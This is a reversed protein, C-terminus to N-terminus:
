QGARRERRQRDLELARWLATYNSGAHWVIWGVGGAEEAAQIQDLIYDSSFHPENWSFGQIYPQVGTPRSGRRQDGKRTGELVIQYGRRAGHDAKFKAPFHSSYLMPCIVDAHRAIADYDQGIGFDSDKHLWPVWGFVDM